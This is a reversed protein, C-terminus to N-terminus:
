YKKEFHNRIIDKIQRWFNIVLKEASVYSLYIIHSPKVYKVNFINQDRIEDKHSFVRM